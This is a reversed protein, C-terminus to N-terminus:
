KKVKVSKQVTDKLYTASYKIKKGKKLKKIVNKKITVKAVGKKNTKSTYKKGNFKFVIKKGKLKKLTAKLVLKKASKKVKVKSLKLLHKVTLTHKAIKGDFNTEIKYKGPALNKPIKVTAIGNKDTKILKFTKAGIKIYDIVDNQAPKANTDYIKVKFSANKTYVININKAVIKIPVSKVLIEYDGEFSYDESIYDISITIEGDDLDKLSVEAKSKVKVTAYNEYDAHIYAIGQSDGVDIILYKNQGATMQSPFTVKPTIEIVDEIQASTNVKEGPYEIVIKHIGVSLKPILIRAQRNQIPVKAIEIDDIIVTFNGGVDEPSNLDVYGTSGYSIVKPWSIYVIEFSYDDLEEGNYEVVATYEGVELKSIDVYGTTKSTINLPYIINNIKMILDNIKIDGEITINIRNGTKNYLYSDQADITVDYDPDEEGDDVLTINFAESYTNLKTKFIVEVNYKKNTALNDLYISFENNGSSSSLTLFNVQGNTKVYIDDDEDIELAVLRGNIKVTLNGTTGDSISLTICDEGVVFENEDIEITVEEEDPEVGGEGTLTINFEKQLTGFKVIVNYLNNTTLKDLSIDYDSDDELEIETFRARSDNLFICDNDEDYYLKCAENNIKVSLKEIIGEPVEVIIADDNGVEFHYINDEDPSDEIYIEPSQSLEDEEVAEIVIEDQNELLINDQSTNIDDSANVTAIAFIMLLFLSLIGLKKFKM